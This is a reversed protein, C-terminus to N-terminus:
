APYGGLLGLSVISFILGSIAVTFEETGPQADWRGLSLWILPAGVFGLITVFWFFIFAAIPRKQRKNLTPKGLKIRIGPILAVILGWLTGTEAANM